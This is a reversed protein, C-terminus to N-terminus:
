RVNTVYAAHRFLMPMNGHVDHRDVGNFKLWRNSPTHFVGHTNIRAQDYLLGRAGMLHDPRNGGVGDFDWVERIYDKLGPAIRAFTHMLQRGRSFNSLVVRKLGAPGANSAAQPHRSAIQLIQGVIDRWDPGFIGTTSYSGQNFMPVVLVHSSSERYLQTGLSQVYRFLPSWKPTRAWYDEPPYADPRPFPHFFINVDEFRSLNSRFACGYWNPGDKSEIILCLVVIGYGEFAFDLPEDLSKLPKVTSPIIFNEAGVVLGHDGTGQHIRRPGDMLEPFDISVLKHRSM